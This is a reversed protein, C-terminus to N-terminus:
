GFLRRREMKGAEAVQKNMDRMADQALKVSLSIYGAALETAM